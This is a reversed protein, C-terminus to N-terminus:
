PKVKKKRHSQEIYPGLVPVGGFQELSKDFVAVCSTFSPSQKVESGDKRKGVYYVRGDIFRIEAAGKWVYEKFWGTEAALPILATIRTGPRRTEEKCKQMFADIVGKSYDPNLFCNRFQEHWNCKLSDVEKDLYLECKTNEETAALDVEFPGCLRNMENFLPLPTGWEGKPTAIDDNRKHVM